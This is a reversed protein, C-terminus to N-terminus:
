QIAQRILLDVTMQEGILALQDDVQDVVVGDHEPSRNGLDHAGRSEPQDRDDSRDLEAPQEDDGARRQGNM